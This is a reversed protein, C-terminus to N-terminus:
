RRRDAPPGHTSRLVLTAPVVVRSAPRDPDAIRAVLLDVAARAMRALDQRVTTLRFVEWSSMRIDDFGVVTLDEPLRLGRARAANLAGLAVVDNACLVATPWRRGGVLEQLGAHGTEFAYAGRRCRADPLEVGHEALGARFGRERDRGTSTDQPGLIAAVSRHGLRAVEAALRRAGAVNDVVCADTRVHDVERNLLVFPFRRAALLGPLASGLTTTTLVVGDLSGDLLREARDLETREPTLVVLRLRAREIAAHLRDVLDLYFPNGLDGVVVGVQRTRRTVLSRGRDSPVYGLDRAAAVVRRRTAESVRPDDRLARSVTPQSVGAALAV